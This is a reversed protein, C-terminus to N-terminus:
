AMLRDVDHDYRDELSHIDSLHGNRGAWERCGM